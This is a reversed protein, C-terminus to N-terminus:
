WIGLLIIHPKERTVRERFLENISVFAKTSFFCGNSSSCKATTVAVQGSPTVKEAVVPKQTQPQLVPEPVVEAVSSPSPTSPLCLPARKPETEEDALLQTQLHHDVHVYRLKAGWRINVQYTLPGLRRIAIGSVWKEVGGRNNRVNVTDSPSLERM